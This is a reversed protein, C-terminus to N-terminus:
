SRRRAARMLADDFSMLEADRERATALVMADPLRLRAHRARLEAAHEAVRVDLPALEVGMGALAERADPVRNRRAFAVLAESYATAPAILQRGAEDARAVHEVAQEHHADREDFLAILVSADLILPGM